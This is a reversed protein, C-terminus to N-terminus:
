LLEAQKLLGDLVQKAAIIGQADKEKKAQKLEKVAFEINRKMVDPLAAWKQERARQAAKTQEETALEDTSKSGAAILDDATPNDPLTSAIRPQPQDPQAAASLDEGGGLLGRFRERREIIKMMQAEIADPTAEDGLENVAQKYLADIDRDSVAGVSQPKARALMRVDGSKTRTLLNGQEDMWTEGPAQGEPYESQTAAGLVYGTHTPGEVGFFQLDHIRHAREKQEPTLNTARDILRREREYQQMEVEADPSAARRQQLQQDVTAGQRIRERELEHELLAKSPEPEPTAENPPNAARTLELQQEFTLPTPGVHAVTRGPIQYSSVITRALAARRELEREEREAALRADDDQQRRMAALYAALGVTAFNPQYSVNVAM